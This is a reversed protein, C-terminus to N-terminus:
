MRKKKIRKWQQYVVQNWNWRGAVYLNSNSQRDFTVRCITLRNARADLQDSAYSRQKVKWNNRADVQGRAMDYKEHLERDGLTRSISVDFKWIVLYTRLIRLFSFTEYFTPSDNLIVTCNLSHFNEGNFYQHLYKNWNPSIDRDTCWNWKLMGSLLM